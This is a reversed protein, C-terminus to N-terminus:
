IEPPAGLPKDLGPTHLLGLADRSADQMESVQQKAKM